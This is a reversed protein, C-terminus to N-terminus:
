QRISIEQKRSFNEYINLSLLRAHHCLQQKSFELMNIQYLLHTARQTQTVWLNNREEYNQIITTNLKRKKEAM